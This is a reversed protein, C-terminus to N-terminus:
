DINLVSGGGSKSTRTDKHPTYVIAPVTLSPDPMPAPNNLTGYKAKLENIDGYELARYPCAEVCAPKGGKDQLEVCFDCKTM